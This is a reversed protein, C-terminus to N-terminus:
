GRVGVVILADSLITSVWDLWPKSLIIAFLFEVALGGLLVWGFAESRSTNKEYETAIDSRGV